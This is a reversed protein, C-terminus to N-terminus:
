DELSKSMRYFYLREDNDIPVFDKKVLTFGASEWFSLSSLSAGLEISALEEERARKELAFVILKGAGAKQYSPNIYVGRLHTESLSGTGIIKSELDAKMRKKTSSDM